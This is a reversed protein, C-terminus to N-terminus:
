AVEVWVDLWVSALCMCHPYVGDVDSVRARRVNGYAAYGSRLLAAGAPDLGGDPPDLVGAESRGSPLVLRCLPFIVDKFGSGDDTLLVCDGPCLGSFDKILAWDAAGYGAFFDGTFPADFRTSGLGVTAPLGNEPPVAVASACTALLALFDRRSIRATGIGM